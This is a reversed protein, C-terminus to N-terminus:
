EGTMYVTYCSLREMFYRLIVDERLFGHGKDITGNMYGNHNKAATKFVM